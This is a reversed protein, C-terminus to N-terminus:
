QPGWLTPPALPHPAWSKASKKGRGSGNEKKEREPDERPIKTTNSVGPGEYTRTQFERATLSGLRACKLARRKLFVVLIGRFSGWSLSSLIFIASSSPFFAFNQATRRLSGASPDEPFLFPFLFHFLSFYSFFFVCLFFFLLFFSSFFCACVRLCWMQRFHIPGLHSALIPNALTPWLWPHPGLPHSDWFKASKGREREM